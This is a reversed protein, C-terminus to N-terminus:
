ANPSCKSTAVTVFSECLSWPTSYFRFATLPPAPVLQVADADVVGFSRTPRVRFWRVPSVAHFEVPASGYENDDNACTMQLDIHKM